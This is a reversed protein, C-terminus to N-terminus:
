VFAANCFRGRVTNGETNKFMGLGEEVGAIWDGDYVSGDAWRM